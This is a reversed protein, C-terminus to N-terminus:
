LHVSHRINADGTKANENGSNNDQAFGSIEDLIALILNLGEHSERESHGSYVTVNKDFEM